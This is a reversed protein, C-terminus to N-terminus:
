NQDSFKDQLNCVLMWSRLKMCSVKNHSFKDLFDNLGISNLDRVTLNGNKEDYFYEVLKIFSGDNLSSLDTSKNYLESEHPLYRVKDFHKKCM